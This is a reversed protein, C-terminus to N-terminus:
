AIGLGWGCTEIAGSMREVSKELQRDAIAAEDMQGRVTKMRSELLKTVEPTGQGNLSAAMDQLEQLAGAACFKAQRAQELQHVAKDQREKLEQQKARFKIDLTGRNAEIAYLKGCKLLDCEAPVVVDFGM